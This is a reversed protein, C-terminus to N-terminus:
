STYSEGALDGLGVAVGDLHAALGALAGGEREEQRLLGLPVLRRVGARTPELRSGKPPRLRLTGRLDCSSAVYLCCCIHTMRPIHGGPPPRYQVLRQVGPWPIYRVRVSPELLSQVPDDAFCPSSPPEEEGPARGTLTLGSRSNRRLYCSRCLFTSRQPFAVSEVFVDRTTRRSAPHRCHGRGVCHYATPARLRHAM